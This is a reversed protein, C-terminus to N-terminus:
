CSPRERLGRFRPRHGSAAFRKRGLQSPRMARLPRRRMSNRFIVPRLPRLPGSRPLLSTTAAIAASGQNAPGHNAM